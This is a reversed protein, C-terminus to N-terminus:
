NYPVGALSRVVWDVPPWLIYSSAPTMVLVMFIVFGWQSMVRAYTQAQAHPLLGFVVKSGDLPPVPLLNFVFLSVNIQLFRTIVMLVNENTIFHTHIQIRVVIAFV